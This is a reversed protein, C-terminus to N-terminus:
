CSSSGRTSVPGSNVYKLFRMGGGVSRTKKACFVEYAMLDKLKHTEVVDGDVEARQPGLAKLSEGAAEFDELSAM